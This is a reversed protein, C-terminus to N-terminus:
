RSFRERAAEAIASRLGPEAPSTSQLHVAVDDETLSELLEGVDDHGLPESGWRSRCLSEQSMFSRAEAPALEDVYAGYLIYESLRLESTMADLWSRGRISEIRNRLQRVLRPDLAVMPAIYDHAVPPASAPLGLLRRATGHWAVHDSMGEHVAGAKRYLRVTGDRWFLDPTVARVFSVDSDVALVVDADIASAVALKVAQQLIWGRIPPWPRRLNIAQVAPWGGLGPIGRVTQMLRYTSLYSRPLFEDNAIVTLRSSRITSFLGTDRAPVIAYHKVDDAAYRVVSEHLQCFIDFDPRYSPTIITLRVM